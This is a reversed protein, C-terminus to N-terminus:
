KRRSLHVVNWAAHKELPGLTTDIEIAGMVREITGLEKFLDDVKGRIAHEAALICDKEEIREALPRADWLRVTNDGSASALIRGDPSFTLAHVYDEHGHLRVLELGSQAEWIGISVHRSGSLIRRGNPTFCLSFLDRIGPTDFRLREERSRIDWVRIEDDEGGTALLKGDPSFAMAKIGQAHAEISCLPELDQTDLIVFSGNQMGYSLRTGDPSLALSWVPSPTAKKERVALTLPDLIWLESWSGLM